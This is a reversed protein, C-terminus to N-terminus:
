AETVVVVAGLSEAARAFTKDAGGYSTSSHERGGSRSEFHGDYEVGDIDIASPYAPAAPAHRIWASGKLLQLGMPGTAIETWATPSLKIPDKTM